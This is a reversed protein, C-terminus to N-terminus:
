LKDVEDRILYKFIGHRLFEFFKCDFTVDDVQRYADDDACRESFNDAGDHLIKEHRRQAFNETVKVEGIVIDREQVLDCWPHRQIRRLFGAEGYKGVAIEDGDQDIEQDDGEANKQHHFRDVFQLAGARRSRRYCFITRGAGHRDWDLRGAARMARTIEVSHARLHIPRKAPSQSVIATSGNLNADLEGRSSDTRSASLPTSSGGGIVRSRGVLNSPAYM